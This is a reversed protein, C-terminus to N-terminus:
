EFEENSPATVKYTKTALNYIQPMPPAAPLEPKPMKAAPVPKVVPAQVAVPQPAQKTGSFTTKYAIGVGILGILCGIVAGMYSNPDAHHVQDALWSVGPIYNQFIKELIHDSEFLNGLIGGMVVNAASLAGGAAAAQRIVRLNDRHMEVLRRVEELNLVEELDETTEGKALKEELSKIKEEQAKLSEQSNVILGAAVLYNKLDEALTKEPKYIVDKGEDNFYALRGDKRQHIWFEGDTLEHYVKIEVKNKHKRVDKGDAMRVYEFNINAIRTVYPKSTKEAQEALRADLDAQSIGAEGKKALQKELTDVKATKGALKSELDKVTSDSNELDIRATELDAKAADLYTLAEEYKKQYNMQPQTSPGSPASPPVPKQPKKYQEPVSAAPRAQAVAPKPAAPAPPPAQPLPAKVKRIMKVPVPKAQAPPAEVGSIYFNLAKIQAPNLALAAGSDMDYFENQGPKRYARAVRTPESDGVQRLLEYVSQGDQKFSTSRVLPQEAPKEPAAVKKAVKKEPQVKDEISSKDVQYFQSFFFPVDQNSVSSLGFTGKQMLGKETLVYTDGKYVIESGIAHKQGAPLPKFGWVDELMNLQREPIKGKGFGTCDFVTECFT